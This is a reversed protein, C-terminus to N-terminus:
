RKGDSKEQQQEPQQADPPSPLPMWHTADTPSHYVWGNYEKSEMWHDLWIHSGLCLLVQTGDRPATSIPQWRMKDAAAQPTAARHNWTAETWRQPRMHHFECLPNSCMITSDGPIGSFDDRPPHGCFPCPLLESM